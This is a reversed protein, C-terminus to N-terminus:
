WTVSSIVLDCFYDVLDCFYDVLDSIYDEFNLSTVTYLKVQSVKVVYRV